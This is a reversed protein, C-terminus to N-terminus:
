DTKRQSFLWSFLGPEAFANDWSNHRAEPYETYKVNAGAQKLAEYVERSEAVPVVQDQAGHFIWMAVHPAYLPALLPLGGGCIPFAAAFTRPRRALLEFTGFGGMSLGGLYLRNPDIAETAALQDLLGMVLALNPNPRERLIYSFGEGTREIEAWYGEKKCQPFVVVAPYRSISDAITRAGHALQATNDQGREGAGHLFLLLPYDQGSEGYGEPFLIRFPLSDGASNVFYRAEYPLDSQALAPLFAASFLVVFLYPKM